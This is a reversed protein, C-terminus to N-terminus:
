GAANYQYSTLEEVTVLAWTEDSNYYTCASIQGNTYEYNYIIYQANEPEDPDYQLQRAETLNGADDYILSYTEDDCIMKEVNGDVDYEIEWLSYFTEGGDEVTFIMEIPRYDPVDVELPIVGVDCFHSVKATITKGDKSIISPFTVWEGNTEDIFALTDTPEFGSELTLSISATALEDFEGEISILGIKSDGLKDLSSGSIGQTTVTLSIPTEMKLTIDDSLIVETDEGETPIIQETVDNLVIIIEAVILISDFFDRDETTVTITVGAAGTEAIATVLGESDISACETDSSSWSVNKNSANSPTIVPTLQLTEGVALVPNSTTATITVGTVSTVSSGTMGPCGSFLISISMFLLLVTLNKKM